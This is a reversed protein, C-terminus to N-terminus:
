RERAVVGLALERLIDRWPGAPLADLESCARSADEEALRRAAALAGNADMRRRLELVVQQASGGERTRQWIEHVLGRLAPERELALAVPLTVEGAALDQGIPKGLRSPDGCLDLLDDTTQFAQGLSLGYGRAAACVDDCAEALVAGAEAAYSFLVATKLHNVRRAHETGVQDDFLFERELSAGQSLQRVAVALAVQLRRPGAEAVREMALTLLMDGALIATPVDFAVHGAASGRRTASGDIVDDHLLSGNHALEVAIVLSAHPRPDRGLARLVANTLRPRAHKGGGDLAHRAAKEIRTVPEGCVAALEREIELLDQEGEVAQLPRLRVRTPAAQISEAVGPSAQVLRDAPRVSV